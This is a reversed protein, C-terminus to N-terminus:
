LYPNQTLESGNALKRLKPLWKDMAEITSKAEEYALEAGVEKAEELRLKEGEYQREYLPLKTTSPNFSACGYCKPYLTYPYPTKPDLECHGYVVLRPSIETDLEHAKPNELLSKPLTQWRLFKNDPNLLLEQFRMDVEAVQEPTPPTYHRFTTTSSKHDAYLQAAEIGYNVRVEQLRSSRIIKGTFHPRQGNSDLIDEREILLRIIKIMPACDARATPPKPLPRMGPFTPYTQSRMGRFNCFLYSYDQGLTERVWQQQEEIVRRIERNAFIRHQRNVKQQYFQIFWVGNEEVLCDFPIQRLDSPRTATYEQVRYQRAIPAPIKDLSKKIAQRVKDDLWDPDNHNVKLIDRQRVLEANDLGLWEFFRQLNLLKSNRTRENNARCSEIFKLVVQRNIDTLQQCHHNNVMQGFQRLLSFISRLSGCSYVRSQLLYHVYRKVQLQYWEPHITDFTLTKPRPERYFNALDWIDDDFNIPRVVDAKQCNQWGRKEETPSFDIKCFYCKYLERNSRGLRYIWGLTKGDPGIEKCLPNPCKLPPQYHSIHRPVKYSLSICKKCSLCRLGVYSNQQYFQLKGAECKPQPCCYEGAYEQRWDVELTGHLTEHNSVNPLRLHVPCTLSTRKRCSACGIIIKCCTQSAFFHLNGADCEPCRYEGAYERRWNVQLTGHLTEHISGKKTPM